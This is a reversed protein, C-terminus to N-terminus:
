KMKRLKSMRNRAAVTGAVFQAKKITGDKNYRYPITGGGVAAYGRGSSTSRTSRTTRTVGTVRTSGKRKVPKRKRYKRKPKLKDKFLILFLLAAGFISLGPRAKLQALINKFDM